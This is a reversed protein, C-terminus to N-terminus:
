IKLICKLFLQKFNPNIIFVCYGDYYKTKTVMLCYNARAQWISHIYNKDIYSPIPHIETQIEKDVIPKSSCVKESFRFNFKFFIEIRKRM